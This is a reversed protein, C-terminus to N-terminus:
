ENLKKHVVDAIKQASRETTEKTSGEVMIRCLNQTGSYRVLVRGRDGLEEEVGKIVKVIEPFSSLDPKRKAEVNLLIQPFVTMISTLESLRSNEKKMSGLLQLASILGDGTTHYERFIIHGSDEGGLVAGNKEMKELVYRDGVQSAIGRVGMKELAVSLGLNSMVTHVVCNNLLRGEKLLRQCCVAIIKDGTVFEGKEDLAIVRDGDGDFALGVDAKMRILEQRLIEPHTSGCDLNINRGDPKVHLAEVEAGLAQFLAPAVEYTAGHACDIMIRIGKLDLDQPFSAILFELYDAAADRYPIVGGIEPTSGVQKDLDNSLVLREIEDEQEDTLKFGEGSFLKIGNDQYPNHSASIVIGCDANLRQTLFAIGPTPIIGVLIVDAGLSILGESLSEEFMQGSKRTDRGIVAKVKYDEKKLIYGVARGVRGAFEATMPYEDVKGRIGDTGFLKKM